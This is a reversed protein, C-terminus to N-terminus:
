DRVTQQLQSEVNRLEETTTAASARAQTYCQHFSQVEFQLSVSWNHLHIPPVDGPVVVQLNRLYTNEHELRRKLSALKTKAHENNQEQETVKEKLEKLQAQTKDFCQFKQQRISQLRAIELTAMREIDAISVYSADCAKVEQNLYKECASRYGEDLLASRTALLM